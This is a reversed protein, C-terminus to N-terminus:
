ILAMWRNPSLIHNQILELADLTQAQTIGDVSLVGAVTLLANDITQAQALSNITLVGDQTLTANGITQEQSVGDVSITGAATLTLDDISQGHAMSDPLLVHAQTLTVADVTQGQTIPSPDITNAQTLTTNDVTQAQTVDDAALQHDQSLTANDISQAQSVDQAALVNAQTLTIGEITVSQTISQLTLATGGGSPATVAYFTSPSSQNKYETDYWENSRSVIHHRVGSINGQYGSRNHFEAGINFYETNGTVTGVASVSNSEALGSGHYMRAEATEAVSDRNLVLYLPDYDTYFASTPLPTTANSTGSLIWLAKPRGAETGAGDVILHNGGSGQEGKIGGLVADSTEERLATWVTVGFDDSVNLGTPSSFAITGTDLFLAPFQGVTTETTGAASGTIYTADSQTGSSDVLPNEAHWVVGYDTWVANRGYTATVAYDSSSGDAHIEVVTASSISLTPIKVHLEGTDTATDCSVVERALETGDPLFCRIDGGGNAVTSWFGAPMDSLDIYAPYDDLQADPTTSDVTVDAEHTASRLSSAAAVAGIDWYSRLNGAIDKWDDAVATSGLPNVGAKELAGGAAPTYDGTGYNVFDVGTTTAIGTISDTGPATLDSSANNSATYGGWAGSEFDYTSCGAAVCNRLIRTGSRTSNELFGRACDAVTVNEFITTTDGLFQTVVGIDFGEIVSNYIQSAEQIGRGTTSATTYVYCDRAIYPALNTGLEIGYTSSGTTKVAVGIIECVTSGSNLGHTGSSVIRYGADKVFNHRADENVRVIVKFNDTGASGISSFDVASDEFAECQFEWDQGDTDPDTHATIAASIAASLSAYTGTPGVTFIRAM